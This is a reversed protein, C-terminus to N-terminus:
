RFIIMEDVDIDKRITEKRRPTGGFIDKGDLDRCSRPWRMKESKIM